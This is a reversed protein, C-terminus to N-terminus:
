HLKIFSRNKLKAKDNRFLLGHHKIFDISKSTGVIRGNITYYTGAIKEAQFTRARGLNKQSKSYVAGGNKLPILTRKSGDPLSGVKKNNIASLSWEGQSLSFTFTDKDVHLTGNNWTVHQPNGLFIVTTLFANSTKSKSAVQIFDITAKGKTLQTPTTGSSRLSIFNKAGAIKGTSGEIAITSRSQFRQQFTRAKQSELQDAVVIYSNNAMIVHRIAKTFVSDPYTMSLDNKLYKFNGIEAFAKYTGWVDRVAKNNEKPNPGKPKPLIAQGLGDALITSHDVTQDAKKGPDDLLREGNAYLIMTGIDYHPHADAAITGGNFAFWFKDSQWVAHGATRFLVSKQLQPKANLPVKTQNKSRWIFWFPSTGRQWVYRCGGNDTAWALLKDDGGMANNWFASLAAPPGGDYTRQDGQATFLGDSYDENLPGFVAYRLDPGHMYTKWYGPLKQVLDNIIHTYDGFMKQRGAIYYHAFRMAYRNYMLGELGGGDVGVLDPMYEKLNVDVSDVVEKAIPLDDYLALAAAGVGGNCVGKWNNTKAVKWWEFGYYSTDYYAHSELIPKFALETLRDQFLKKQKETLQDYCWDYVLACVVSFEGTSLDAGRTFWDHKPDMWRPLNMCAIAEEIARQAYKKEGTMQYAFATIGAKGIADRARFFKADLIEPGKSPQLYYDARALFLQWREKFAPTNLKARIAGVEQSNFWVFPHNRAHSTHILGILFITILTIQIKKNM